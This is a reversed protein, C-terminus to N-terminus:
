FLWRGAELEGLNITASEGSVKVKLKVPVCSAEGHEMDKIAYSNGCFRCVLRGAEVAYGDRYVYCRRCADFAAHTMGAEDRALIFRLKTGARDRYVYSRASGPALKRLDVTILGHHARVQQHRIKWLSVLWMVSALLCALSILLGLSPLRPRKRFAM